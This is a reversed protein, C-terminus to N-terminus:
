TCQVNELEIVQNCLIKVKRDLIRMPQVQFDGETEVHILHWDIVHNPDHVYKKLSSVHFVNHVNISTNFALIYPVTRTQGIYSISWLIQSSAKYLYV